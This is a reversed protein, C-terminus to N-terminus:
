SEMHDEADFFDDPSDTPPEEYVTERDDFTRYDNDSYYHHYGYYYPSYGYGSYYNNRMRANEVHANKQVQKSGAGCEPCVVGKESDICHDRCIPRGCLTCNTKVPSGCDRLFLLGIKAKCTQSDRFDEM